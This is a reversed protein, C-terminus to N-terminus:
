AALVRAVIPAHAAFLDAMNQREESTLQFVRDNVFAGGRLEIVLNLAVLAARQEGSVTKVGGILPLVIRNAPRTGGAPKTQAPKTTMRATFGM